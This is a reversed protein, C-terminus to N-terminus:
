EQRSERGRRPRHRAAKPISEETHNCRAASPLPDVLLQRAAGHFWPRGLLRYQRSASISSKPFETGKAKGAHHTTLMDRNNYPRPGFREGTFIKSVRLLCFHWAMRRQRYLPCNLAHVTHVTRVM